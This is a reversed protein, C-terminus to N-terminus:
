KRIKEILLMFIRGGDLAPFPILNFVGLNLTILTVIRLVTEFSSRVAEGMLSIIGVTGVMGDLSQQFTVLRVITTIMEKFLLWMWRFSLGIAELFGYHVRVSSMTIGIIDKGLEESYTFGSTVEILEGGRELTLTVTDTGEAPVITDIAEQYFYIDYGNIGKIIDDEQIGAIQAPSGETVGAVIPAYDGFASIYIVALLIALITNNLGGCVLTIFRKWIPQNNFARPDNNEEDEGLFRVFGGIPFARISYLIGGREWKFLKPGFGIAFEEIAFGLKKGALFHGLEHLMIIVGVILIAAIISGITALM